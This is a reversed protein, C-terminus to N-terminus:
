QIPRTTPVHSPPQLVAFAGAMVKEDRNKYIPVLSPFGGGHKAIKQSTATSPRIEGLVLVKSEQVGVKKWEVSATNAAAM